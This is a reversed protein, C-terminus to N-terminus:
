FPMEDASPGYVPPVAVGMSRLYTSLQGRHHYWHNFLINRVIQRRPLEILVTDGAVMRWPGALQAETFGGLIERAKVLGDDHLALLEARSAPEVQPPPSKMDFRDMAAVGALAMPIIAVHHALAGASKGRPHPQWGYRDEPVRELMRRTVPAEWELEALMDDRTFM